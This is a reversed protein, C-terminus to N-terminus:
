AMKGELKALRTDMAGVRDLVAQLMSCLQQHAAEPTPAASPADDAHAGNRISAAAASAATEELRRQVALARDTVDQIYQNPGSLQEQQPFFTTARRHTMRAAELQLATLMGPYSVAANQVEDIKLEWLQCPAAARMGALLCSFVPDCDRLLSAVALVAPTEHVFLGDVEPHRVMMQGQTMIWLRDAADGSFCLNEGIGIGVPKMSSALLEQQASSLTNFPPMKALIPKLADCAAVAQLQGPLESFLDPGVDSNGTAWVQQYYRRIQARTDASLQQQEAWADLMPLKNNLEAERDEGGAFVDQISGLLIVFILIGGLMVAMAAFMEGSNTASIDGYGVTTMTTVSWYLSTVYCWGFTLTSAEACEPPVEMEPKWSLKVMDCGPLGDGTWVVIWNMTNSLNYWYGVTFWLCAIMNILFVLMYGIVLAYVGAAGLRRQMARSPGEGRAVTKLLHKSRKIAYTLRAMRLIQMTNLIKAIALSSDTQMLVFNAVMCGYAFTSIIDVYFTGHSKYFKSVSAGDRVVIRLLNREAIFATHFGMYISVLYIPGTLLNLWGLFDNRGNIVFAVSIPILFATYTLDWWLIFTGWNHVFKTYPDFVPWGCLSRDSARRGPVALTASYASGVERHLKEVTQEDVMSDWEAASTEWVYGSLVTGPVVSKIEFSGVAAKEAKGPDTALPVVAGTDSSAM